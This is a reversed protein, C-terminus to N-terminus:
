FLGEVKKTIIQMPINNKYLFNLFANESIDQLLGAGFESSGCLTILAFGVWVIMLALVVGLAAGLLKNAEKIGPIKTVLDFFSNLIHLAIAAVIVLVIFCAVYIIMSSLFQTLNNAVVTATAEKGADITNAVKDTIISPLNVNQLLDKGSPFKKVLDGLKLASYIKENLKTMLNENKMIAKAVPSCLICAVIISVFTTATEFIMDTFGRVLGVVLGAILIVLVIWFLTNM